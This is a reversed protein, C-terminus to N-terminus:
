DISRHRDCKKKRDLASESSKSFSRKKRNFFVFILIYKEISCTYISVLVVLIMRIIVYNCLIYFPIFYFLCFFICFFLCVLFSVLFLIADMDFSVYNLFIAHPMTFLINHTIEVQYTRAHKSARAHKFCPFKIM